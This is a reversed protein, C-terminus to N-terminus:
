TAGIDICNGGDVALEVVSTVSINPDVREGEIIGGFWPFLFWVIVFERGSLVVTTTPVVSSLSLVVVTTSTLM